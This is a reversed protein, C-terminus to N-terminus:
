KISATPDIKLETYICIILWMSVESDFYRCMGEDEKSGLFMLSEKHVLHNARSSDFCKSIM